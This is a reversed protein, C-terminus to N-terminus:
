EVDIDGGAFHGVPLNKCFAKCRSQGIADLAIDFAIDPAAHTPGIRLFITDTAVVGTAVQDAFNM